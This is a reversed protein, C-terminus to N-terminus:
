QRSIWSAKLSSRVSMLRLLPKVAGIGRDARLRPIEPDFKTRFQANEINHIARVFGDSRVVAIGGRKTGLHSHYDVGYYIDAIVDQRGAAGFFGGM